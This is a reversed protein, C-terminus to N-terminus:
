EIFHYLVDWTPRLTYWLRGMKNARTLALLGLTKQCSVSKSFLSSMGRVSKLADKTPTVCIGPDCQCLTICPVALVFLVFSFLFAAHISPYNPGDSQTMYTFALNPCLLPTPFGVTDFGPLGPMHWGFCLELHLAWFIPVRKYATKSPTGNYCKM